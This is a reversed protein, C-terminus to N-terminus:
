EEIFEAVIRGGQTVVEFSRPVRRDDDSLWLTIDMPEGPGVPVARCDIRVGRADRGREPPAVELEYRDDLYDVVLRGRARPLSAAWARVATVATLISHGAGPRPPGSRRERGARWLWDERQRTMGNPDVIATSVADLRAVMATLASSRLAGTVDVAGDRHVPGVALQARGITMGAWRVNWALEKGPQWMTGPPIEVTHQVFSAAAEPLRPAALPPERCSAALLALTILLAFIRFAARM